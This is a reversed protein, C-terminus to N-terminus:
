HYDFKNEPSPKSSQATPMYIQLSLLPQLLNRLIQYFLGNEGELSGTKPYNPVDYPFKIFFHSSTWM